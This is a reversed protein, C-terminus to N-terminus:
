LGAWGGGDASGAGGRLSGLGGSRCARCSIARTFFWASLADTMPMIPDATGHVHRLNVSGSACAPPLPQWFGGSFSLFATFDRAAYCALDWAMSSGMSFGGAVVLRPDVPWRRRADAVVARLFGVDDRDHSPSGVQSWSGGVGDPAVLLFGAQSAVPGVAPDALVGAGNGTYGHLFLLMPLRDDGNWAAPAAAVYHGSAVACPATVVM